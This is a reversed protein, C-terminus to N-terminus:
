LLREIYELRMDDIWNCADICGQKSPEFLKTKVTESPDLVRFEAKIHREELTNTSFGINTIFIEFVHYCVYYVPAFYYEDEYYEDDNCKGHNDWEKKYREDKMIIDFTNNKIEM